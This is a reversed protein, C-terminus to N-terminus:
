SLATYRFSMGNIETEHNTMVVQDVPIERSVVKDDAIAPVALVALLLSSLLTKKFM